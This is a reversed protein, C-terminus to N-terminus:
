INKKIGDEMKLRKGSKIRNIVMDFFVQSEFLYVPSITIGHKELTAFLEIYTSKLKRDTVISDLIYCLKRIQCEDGVIMLDKRKIQLNYKRLVNKIDKLYIYCTSHGIFLKEAIQISSYFKELLLKTIQVCKLNKLFLFEMESLFGNGVSFEIKELNIDRFYCYGDLVESLYKIDKQITSLTANIEISIRKYSVINRNEKLYKLIKLRRLDSSDLMDYFISIDM